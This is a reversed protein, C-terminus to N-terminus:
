TVDSSAILRVKHEPAAFPKISSQQLVKIDLFEGTFIYADSNLSRFLARATHGPLRSYTVM